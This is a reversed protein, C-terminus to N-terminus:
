STQSSTEAIETNEGSRNNILQNLNRLLKSIYIVSMLAFFAAEATEGRTNENYTEWLFFAGALSDALTARIKEKRYKKADIIKVKALERMAREELVDVMRRGALELNSIETLKDRIIDTKGLVSISDEDDPEELPEDLLSFGFRQSLAAMEKNTTGYLYKPKDRNSFAPSSDLGGFFDSLGKYLYWLAISRIEPSNEENDLLTFDVEGVVTIGDPLVRRLREREYNWMSKYFTSIKVSLDHSEFHLVGDEDQHFAEEPPKLWDIEQM